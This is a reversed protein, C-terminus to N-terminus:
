QKLEMPMERTPPPESVGGITFRTQCKRCRTNHGHFRPETVYRACCGPCVTIYPETTTQIM